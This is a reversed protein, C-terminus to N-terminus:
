CEVMYQLAEGQGKLRLIMIQGVWTHKLPSIM